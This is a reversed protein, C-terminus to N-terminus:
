RLAGRDRVYLLRSLKSHLTCVELVLREAAAVARRLITVGVVLCRREGLRWQEPVVPDCRKGAQAGRVTRDGDLSM